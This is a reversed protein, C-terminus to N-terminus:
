SWASMLNISPDLYGDRDEDVYVSIFANELRKMLIDYFSKYKNYIDLQLSNLEFGSMSSYKERTSSNTTENGTEDGTKTLTMDNTNSMTTNSDQKSTSNSAGENKITGTNKSTGIDTSSSTGAETQKSTTDNVNDSASSAYEWGLTIEKKADVTSQPYDANVVRNKQNNTNDTTKNNTSNNTNNNSVTTDLTQTNNNDANQTNNTVNGVTGSISQKTTDITNHELVNKKGQNFETTHSLDATASKLDKLINNFDNNLNMNVLEKLFKTKFIEPNNNCIERNIFNYITFYAINYAYEDTYPQGNFTYNNWFDKMMWRVLYPFAEQADSTESMSQAMEYLTMNCTKPTNLSYTQNPKDRM